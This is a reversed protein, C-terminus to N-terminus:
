RAPSNSPGAHSRSEAVREQQWDMIDDEVWGVARYGLNIPKPFEGRAIRDYITSRSLGTAAKVEPLRLIRSIPKMDM